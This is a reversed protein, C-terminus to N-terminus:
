TINNDNDSHDSIEGPVITPEVPTLQQRQRRRLWWWLGIAVAGLAVIGAIIWVISLNKTHAPAATIVSATAVKFNAITNRESTLKTVPDTVTAEVHHSGSELGSLEFSWAGQANATTTAQRPTSFIYLTVTGNPVTTGSLTFAKGANVTPSADKALVQDDLKLTSPAAPPMTVPTPTPTSVPTPAPATPKPTAAATFTVSVTNGTPQYDDKGPKIKVGVLKTGAVSSKLTFTGTCTGNDYTMSLDTPTLTDGSGNTYAQHKYCEGPYGPPPADVGTEVVSFTITATNNATASTASASVTTSLASASHPLFIAVVLPIVFLAIIRFTRNSLLHQRSKM